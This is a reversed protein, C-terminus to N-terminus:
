FQLGGQHADEAQAVGGRGLLRASTTALSSRSTQHLMFM